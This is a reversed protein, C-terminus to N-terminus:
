SEEDDPDTVSYIRKVAVFVMATTWGIIITGNAAEFASLLRWETDLVVDGYGLTTFTVTSFYLAEELTQLAGFYLYLLAWGWAQICISLFFWIVIAAIQLSSRLSTPGHNHMRGCVQGAAVMFAAHIMVTAIIALMGIALHEIFM